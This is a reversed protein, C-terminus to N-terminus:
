KCTQKDSDRVGFIKSSPTQRQNKWKVESITANRTANKPRPKIPYDVGKRQANGSQPVNYIYSLGWGLIDTAYKVGSMLSSSLQKYFITATDCQKESNEKIMKYIQEKNEPYKDLIRRYRRALVQKMEDICLAEKTVTLSDKFFTSLDFDDAYTQKYAHGKKDYRTRNYTYNAQKAQQKQIASISPVKVPKQQGHKV